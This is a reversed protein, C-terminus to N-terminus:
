LDTPYAVGDLGPVTVAQADNGNRRLQDAAYDAVCGSLLQRPDELVLRLRTTMTRMDDPGTIRPMESLAVTAVAITPAPAADAAYRPFGAFMTPGLDVIAKTYSWLWRAPEEIAQVTALDGTGEVVFTPGLPAIYLRDLALRNDAAALIMQAVSNSTWTVGSTPRGQQGCILVMAREWDVREARFWRMLRHAADLSALFFTAIMVANFPVTAGLAGGTAELVERRLFDPNLKAADALVAELYRMTLGCGYDLLAAIAAERGRYADVGIRHWLEPSNARRAIKTAALLRLADQRWADSAPDLARLNVLSGMAPGLHSVAALEKFGGTSLRFGLVSPLRGGGPFIAVHTATALVLPADAEARAAARTLNAGISDAHATYTEFLAVLEPSETVPM